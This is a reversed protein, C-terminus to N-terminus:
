GEWLKIHMWANLCTCVHRCSLAHSIKQLVLQINYFIWTITYRGPLLLCQGRALWASWADRMASLMFYILIFVKTRRYLLYSKNKYICSLVTFVVHQRSLIACCFGSSDVSSLLIFKYSVHRNFIITRLQEFFSVFDVKFLGLWFAHFAM